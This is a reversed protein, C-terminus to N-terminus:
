RSRLSLDPCFWQCGEWIGSVLLIVLQKARIDSEIPTSPVGIIGANRTQRAHDNLHFALLLRTAGPHHAELFLRPGKLKRIDLSTDQYKVEFPVLRGGGQGFRTITELTVTKSM